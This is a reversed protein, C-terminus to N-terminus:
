CGNPLLRAKHRTRESMRSIKATISASLMGTKGSLFVAKSACHHSTLPSYNITLPAARDMTSRWWGGIVHKNRRESKPDEPLSEQHKGCATVAQQVLKVTFVQVGREDAMGDVDAVESAE